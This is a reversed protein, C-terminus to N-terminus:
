GERNTPLTLHTYSVPGSSDLVPVYTSVVAAPSGSSSSAGVKCSASNEWGWGDGDDDSTAYECINNEQVLTTAVEATSGTIICSANNEWGWGDDDSDSDASLCLPTNAHGAASAIFLSGIFLAKAVAYRTRTSRHSRSGNM